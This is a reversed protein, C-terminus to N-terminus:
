TSSNTGRPLSPVANGATNKTILSSDNDTPSPIGLLMAVTSIQNGLQLPRNQNGVVPSAKGWTGPYNSGNGNASINGIVECSTIMGSYLSVCSSNPAHDSGVMDLRAQRGFDSSVQIVTQQFLNKGNALTVTKLQTILEYLCASWARAFKTMMILGTVSGVYHMDLDTGYNSNSTTAGSSTNYISDMNMARFGSTLINISSGIRNKLMWETVAMGEALADIFTNTTFTNQFNSGSYLLTSDGIGVRKLTTSGPVVVNEVGALFYSSNTFSQTVLYKYKDRLATFATQLNGFSTKMLQKAKARTSYNTPLYQHKNASDTAMLNLLNDIATDVAANSVETLSSSNNFPSLAQSLPDSGNTIQEALGKASSFYQSDYNNSQSSYGTGPIPTSAADAVLGTLSPAGSTPRVNRRPGILHSDIAYDMGRIMLLNPLLNAMPVSSGDPRPMSTTWVLPMRIGNSQSNTASQYILNFNSDMTTGVTPNAIIPDSANPQLPLDYAWRPAGGQLCFNVFNFDSDTVAAEAKGSVFQSFISAMLIKVPNAFAIGSAGAVSQKLFKRREARKRRKMKSVGTPINLHPQSM